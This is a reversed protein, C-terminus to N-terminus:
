VKLVDSNQFHFHINGTNLGVEHLSRGAISRHRIRWNTKLNKVCGNRESKVHLAVGRISELLSFHTTGINIHM